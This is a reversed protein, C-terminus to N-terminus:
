RSSQGGRAQSPSGPKVTAGLSKIYTVLQLLQEETIQGKYTPMVPQYGAVIKEAPTLISERLYDDDATASSGDHLAVQSGALGALQPARASGDERHCTNCALQTFLEAGSALMPIGVNGANLWAAYAHPEMVVVQGIMRSHEAGCYETCYLPFTGTKTAEFWVSTYRGPIADAKVRFAPVFFSHIVDESTMTLRIATGVPVHLQNIERNGEPHQFKWMWQKGVTFYEVAHQPPRTLKFFVQAGWWFLGLLILLPIVSWIIELIWNAREPVGVQDPSTRKYRVALFLVAVAILLSFFASVALAAFYIADVDGAVTSASDPFLPFNEWM